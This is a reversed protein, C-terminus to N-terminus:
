PEVGLHRLFATTSRGPVLPVRVVAGGYGRVLDAGVIAHDEYDAGKVLVAPRLAAILEYPTDEEFITVADVCELAAVLFARDDEPVVPRRPGKLRRVSDDSNLAVVLADGYTRASWLLEVHGRHLLDFCGNTFVVRRGSAPGFRDLLTARDLLKERPHVLSPM